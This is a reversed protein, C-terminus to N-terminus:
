TIVSRFLIDYCMPLTILLDLTQIGGLATKKERGIKENTWGLLLYPVFTATKGLFYLAQNDMLRMISRNISSISLTLQKFVKNSVKDRQPYCPCSCTKTLVLAQLISSSTLVHFHLWPQVNTPVIWQSLDRLREQMARIRGYHWAAPFLPLINEEWQKKFAQLSFELSLTVPSLNSVRWLHLSKESWNSQIEFIDALQFGKQHNWEPEMESSEHVSHELPIALKPEMM